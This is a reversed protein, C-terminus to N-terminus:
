RIQVPKSPDGHVQELPHNKTWNYDFCHRQYFIHMNSTDINHSSSEVAEPGPPAFPNIFEYVEFPENEAQDTNYEKATVNTLPIIPESAHQVNFTPQTDLIYKKGNISEVRMLGCLDMHLLHLREKSSPVTKTKFTSRKAKRHWLWAQTPTAKAMFYIPTPSSTEPLSITYLDSGCTGTLLYNGNENRKSLDNELREYKEVAALYDCAMGSYEDINDFSCLIACM